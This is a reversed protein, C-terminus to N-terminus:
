PSKQPYNLIFRTTQCGDNVTIFYVGEPFASLNLQIMEEEPEVQYLFQTLRDGEANYISFDLMVSTDCDVVLNAVNHGIQIYYKISCPESSQALTFFSAFLFFLILILKKMYRYISLYFGSKSVFFEIESVFTLM